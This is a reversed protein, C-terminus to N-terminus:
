IKIILQASSCNDCPLIGIPREYIFTSNNYTNGYTFYNDCWYPNFCKEEKDKSSCTIIDYLNIFTDRGTGNNNTDNIIIFSGKNMLPVIKECILNYVKEVEDNKNNHYYSSIVYSLCLVDVNSLYDVIDESKLKELIDGEIIDCKINSPIDIENVVNCWQQTYDFGLYNIKSETNGLYIQLAALDPMAGCGLSVINIEEKDKNLQATDIAYYIESMYKQYYNNIYYYIMNICDYKGNNRNNYESNFWHMGALCNKCEDNATCLNEARYNCIGQPCNSQYNENSLDIIQKYIM